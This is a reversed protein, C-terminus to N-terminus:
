MNMCEVIWTPVGCHGTTELTHRAQREYRGDVVAEMVLHRDFRQAVDHWLCAYCSAYLALDPRDFLFNSLEAVSWKQPFRLLQQGTDPFLRALDAVTVSQWDLAIEGFEVMAMVVKRAISKRVYGTRLWQQLGVPGRQAIKLTLANVKDVATLFDREVSCSKWEEALEDRARLFPSIVSVDGQTARIQRQTLGLSWIEKEGSRNPLPVM